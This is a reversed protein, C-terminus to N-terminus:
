PLVRFIVNGSLTGSSTAVKVTGTSAGMPVTATIETDSVVAFEAPTGNFSVSTAGKLDGGLITVTWGVKGFTPNAEVFPGLGVSLSFITGGADLGGRQTTGYFTGNTAQMLGGVPLTGDVCNAQACFSYLTTLTGAPTIQFVTGANNAGGVQTTGYLNGDTGQVLSGSPYGGDAGDFVHLTTLAGSPTMKFVTGAKNHGGGATTGYFYGDVALTLGGVPRVGDVTNFSHLTTLAGTPTIKFVTGCLCPGSGGAQTTGYFNGNSAQVLTGAPREGDACNAQSCFSYLSVFTGRASIKFVTGESYAGGSVTTGYLNADTAQLLVGSPWKGGTQDFAHLTTLQGGPTIKFVTGWGPQLASRLSTTGYFNGDAAQLVGVRPSWGDTCRILSCFGYLITLTGSQTVKFVVGYRDAEGAVTTGYFNGDFGQALPSNPLYGDTGDFSVLSTFNQASSAIATALCFLLVACGNKWCSLKSPTDDAINM